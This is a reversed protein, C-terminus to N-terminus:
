EVVIKVNFQGFFLTQSSSGVDDDDKNITNEGNIDGDDDSDSDSNNDDNDDNHRNVSLVVKGVSGKALTRQLIKFGDWPKGCRCNEKEPDHRERFHYYEEVVDEFSEHPEIETVDLWVKWNHVGLIAVFHEGTMTNGFLAGGYAGSDVLELKFRGHRREELTWRYFGDPNHHKELNFGRGMVGSFDVDFLYRYTEPITLDRGLTRPAASGLYISKPAPISVTDDITLVESCRIRHYVKPHVEKLFIALRRDDDGMCDLVAALAGDQVEILPLRMRLGRNTMLFDRSHIRELLRVQQCAVFEVPNVALPGRERPGREDNPSKWSFLSHDTSTRMFELQLREFARAGEGYLLPMNIGLLSLLCYAMDEERTTERKAAWSMVQAISCERSFDRALIRPPIGTVRQITPSLNGRTDIREWDQTYFVMFKPALLEQLTWGRTFWRSRDVTEYSGTDSLFVYCVEAYHYWKYMSNIAESLESDSTKDICCTDVWWHVLGDLAAQKGCNVIKAYGPKDKGIGKSLEQLKVEEEDSGWTHSLIAYPPVNKVLNSTLSPDGNSNFHLLRM